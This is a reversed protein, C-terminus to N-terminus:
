EDRGADAVGAPRAAAGGTEVHLEFSWDAGVGGPSVGVGAGTVEAFDDAAECGPRVFVPEVASVDSDEGDGGRGAECGGAIGLSDAWPKANVEM